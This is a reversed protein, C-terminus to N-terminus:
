RVLSVLWSLTRTRGYGDVGALRLTYNGSGLLFPGFAVRGARGLFHQNVLLRAGRYTRLRGNYIQNARAHLTVSWADGARTVTPPERMLTFTPPPAAPGCRGLCAPTRLLGGALRTEFVYLGSRLVPFPGIRVRGAAVRAAVSTVARGARIGRVRATGGKTTVFRLTVRYGTSTKVVIPRRLSRLTATKVPHNSFTATASQATALKVACTTKKGTCAGSWGLFSQGGAPRATLATSAGAKFHQVCTKTGGTSACAGASTSVSGRGLVHVTLTGPTGAAAFTASVSKASTMSVACTAATGTCSGGWGRFSAGSAPSQSLVATTGPTFTATCTTAGNGCNIGNGTVRGPGTASVTLAFTSTGGSFAATVTKSANFTVTCTPVTGTCTGGGWGAFTAGSSPTATLTVASNAVHGASTCATAGSGCSIGGGTVTGNGTVSVSLTFGTGTAGSFTATVNRSQTMSVTCTTATGGCAGTWGTFTAGLAPSAVLSVTAGAAFNASCIGAGGGCNIAGSGGTVAGNGSISVALVNAQTFTATVTTAATMTVTCTLSTGTCGGTWGTFVFGDSPSATLTVSSNLAQNSVCTSPCNIAGGSVHGSGAVSVSLQATDTSDIWTASVSRDGSMETTCSSSTGSCAGGWGSFVAGPDPTEVVTLVSGDPVSWSCTSGASGCDIRINGGTVTGSGTVTASLTRGNTPPGAFTATILHDNGDSIDCTPSGDLDCDGEVGDTLDWDNWHDFTWGNATEDATLTAAGGLNLACTKKGDGCKIGKPSTVQGKGVVSVASVGTAAPPPPPPTLVFTATISHTSDAAGPQIQCSSASITEGAAACTWQDFDWGSAPTATLVISSTSMSPFSCTPPCSIGPPTSTVTGSGAVTVNITTTAASRGAASGAGLLLAAVVAVPVVGRRM